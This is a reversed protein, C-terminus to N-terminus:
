RDRVVGSCCADIRRTLYCTDVIRGKALTAEQVVVPGIRGDVRASGCRSHHTDVGGALDDAIVKVDNERDMDNVGLDNAKEVGIARKRGDAIRQRDSRAM